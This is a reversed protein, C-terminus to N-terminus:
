RPPGESVDPKCSEESDMSPQDAEVNKPESCTAGVGAGEDDDRMAATGIVVGLQSLTTVVVILRFVSYAVVLAALLFLIHHLAFAREPLVQESGGLGYMAIVVGITWLQAIASFTFVFLLDSFSSFRRGELRHLSATRIFQRNPLTL